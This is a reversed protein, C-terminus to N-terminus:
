ENNKEKKVENLVRIFKVINGNLVNVIGTIPSKMARLLMLILEEKSPLKSLEELKEIGVYDGEVIGSKVKLKENDEAFEVLVKAPSVPDEYSFALATPGKLDDDVDIDLENFAIKALTNKCVKYDIDQESLKRRLETIEAVNLGMYDTLVISNASSIKEKLDAVVEAKSQKVQKAM